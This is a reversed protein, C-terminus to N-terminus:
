LKLKGNEVVPKGDIKLTTNLLHFFLSFGVNNDGGSWINNGIGVTVMGEAMWAQMNTGEPIKVNPNIGIDIAAFEDKGEGAKDYREKLRSIDSDATITQLKGNKFTLTLNKILKGEWFYKDVVVKGNAKGKIPTFYIEGAPLYEAVNAAGSAINEETIIGDSIILPRGYIEATLDTGSPTTIQITKGEKLKKSVAEANNKIVEYDTNIGKWFVDSLEEVSINYRKALTETPYLNNGLSLFKIKKKFWMMNIEESRKRQKAIREADIDKLLGEEVSIEVNIQADIIEILKESLVDKQLDFKEPVETFGSRYLRGSNLTILPFAGIKRVQIAIDELLEYDRVSGSILVIEGEKIAANVTVLKNALGNMDMKGSQCFVFQIICFIAFVLHKVSLINM